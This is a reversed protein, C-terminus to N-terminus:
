GRTNTGDQTSTIISSLTMCYSFALRIKVVCSIAPILSHWSKYWGFEAGIHDAMSRQQQMSFRKRRERYLVYGESLSPGFQGGLVEHIAELFYESDDCHPGLSILTLSASAFIISMMAVQQSKEATDAQNICIADIWIPGKFQDQHRQAQWLAYHCNTTVQLPKSNVWIKHSKTDEGWTYSIANYELDVEAAGPRIWTPEFRHACLRCRMEDNNSNCQEFYLLRIEQSPDDFPVHKFPEEALLEAVNM